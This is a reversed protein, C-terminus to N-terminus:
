PTGEETSGRSDPAAPPLPSPPSSLLWPNSASRLCSRCKMEGQTQVGHAKIQKELKEFIGCNKGGCPRQVLQKRQRSHRVGWKAYNIVGVGGESKLELIVEQVGMGWVLGSEETVHEGPMRDGEKPCKGYLTCLATEM